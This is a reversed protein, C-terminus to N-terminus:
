ARPLYGNGDEVTGLYTLHRSTENDARWVVIRIPHGDPLNYYCTHRSLDPVACVELTDEDWDDFIQAILYHDDDWVDALGVSAQSWQGYDNSFDNFVVVAVRHGNWYFQDTADSAQATGAGLTFVAGVVTAIAGCLATVRLRNM